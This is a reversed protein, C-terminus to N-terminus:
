EGAKPSGREHVKLLEQLDRTWFPHAHIKAQPHLTQRITKRVFDEFEIADFTVGAIQNFLVRVQEYTYCTGWPSFNPQSSKLRGERSMHLRLQTTIPIDRVLLGKKKRVM